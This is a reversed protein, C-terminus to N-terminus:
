PGWNNVTEQAEALLKILDPIDVEREAASVGLKGWDERLRKYAFREVDLYDPERPESSGNGLSMLEDRLGELHREAAIQTSLWMERNSDLLPVQGIEKLYMKVPDDSPPLNDIVESRTDAGDLENADYEASDYSERKSEDTDKLRAEEDDDYGVYAGIRKESNMTM